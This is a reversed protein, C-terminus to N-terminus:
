LLFHILKSALCTAFSYAWMRFTWWRRINRINPILINIIQMPKQTALRPIIFFYGIIHSAFLYSFILILILQILINILLSLFLKIILFQIQIPYPFQSDLMGNEQILSVLLIIIPGSPLFYQFSHFNKIKILSDIRDWVCIM